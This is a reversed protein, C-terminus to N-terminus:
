ETKSRFSTPELNTLFSSANNNESWHYALSWPNLPELELGFTEYFLKSFRAQIGQSTSLFFITGTSFNWLAQYLSSTPSSKELLFEKVSNRIERKENVSLKQRGSVELAAREEIAIHAMLLPKSIRRRDLRLTLKLYPETLMTGIDPGQLCNEPNVWGVSEDSDPLDSLDRFSNQTMLKQYEEQDFSFKGMVKLRTFSLSRKLFHM